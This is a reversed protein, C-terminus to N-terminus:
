CADSGNRRQEFSPRFFLSVMTPHNENVLLGDGGRVDAAL